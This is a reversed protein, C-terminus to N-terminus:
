EYRINIRDDFGPALMPVSPPDANLTAEDRDDGAEIV